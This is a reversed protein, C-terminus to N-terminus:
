ASTVTSQTRVFCRFQHLVSFASRQPAIATYEFFVEQKPPLLLWTADSSNSLADGFIKDYRFFEIEPTVLM